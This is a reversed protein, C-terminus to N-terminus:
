FDFVGDIEENSIVFVTNHPPLPEEIFFKPLRDDEQTFGAKRNFEKEAKLVRIGLAAVDDPGFQTGAKANIAKLLAEGGEPTQLGAIAM